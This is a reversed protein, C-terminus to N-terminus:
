CSFRAFVLLARLMFILVVLMEANTKRSHHGDFNEQPHVIMLLLKRFDSKPGHALCLYAIEHSITYICMSTQSNKHKSSM